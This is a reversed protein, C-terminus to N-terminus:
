QTSSSQKQLKEFCQGVERWLAVGDFEGLKLLRDQESAIHLWGNAGHLREVQLAMGWIEQERTLKLRRDDTSM